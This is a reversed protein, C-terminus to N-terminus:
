STITMVIFIVDNNGKILFDFMSLWYLVDVYYYYVCSFHASSLTFALIFFFFFYTFSDLIKMHTSVLIKMVTYCPNCFHLIRCSLLLLYIFLVDIDVMGDQVCVCVCVQQGFPNTNQQQQQQPWTGMSGQQMGM